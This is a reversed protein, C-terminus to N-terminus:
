LETLAINLGEELAEEYTDYDSSEKIAENKHYVVAFYQKSYLTNEVCMRDVLVDYDKNRLWTQVVSLTPASYLCKDMNNLDRRHVGERFQLDKGLSRHDVYFDSVNEKFGKEKLLKATEISVNRERM